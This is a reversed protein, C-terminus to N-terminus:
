QLVGPVALTFPPIVIDFSRGDLSVMRYTGHMSGVPTELPCGSTYAFEEGPRLWPQKGVVGLGRVEHVEGHADTIVWHRSVLQAAVGNENTITVHYAFFWRGHEPASQEPLFWSEVRVRFGHTCAESVFTEAM